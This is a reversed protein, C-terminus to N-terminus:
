ALRTMTTQGRSWETLISPPWPEVHGSLLDLGLLPVGEEADGVVLVITVVEGARVAEWVEGQRSM